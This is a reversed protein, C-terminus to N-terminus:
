HALTSCFLKQKGVYVLFARPHFQRPTALLLLWHAPQAGSQLRGHVLQAAKYANETIKKRHAYKHPLM